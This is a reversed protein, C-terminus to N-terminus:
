KRLISNKMLEKIRLEYKEATYSRDRFSEVMATHEAQVYKILVDIDFYKKWSDNSSKIIRLNAEIYKKLDNIDSESIGDYHTKFFRSCEEDKGNIIDLISELLAIAKEESKPVITGTLYYMALNWMCYIEKKQAGIYTFMFVFNHMGDQRLRECFAPICLFHGKQFALSFYHYPVGFMDDQENICGYQLESSCGLCWLANLNGDDAAVKYCNIVRTYSNRDIDLYDVWNSDYHNEAYDLEYGIPDLYDRDDDPSPQIYHDSVLLKEYKTGRIKVFSDCTLFVNYPVISDDEDFIFGKPGFLFEMKGDEFRFEGNQFQARYPEIADSVCEEICYWLYQMKIERSVDEGLSAIDFIEYATPITNM